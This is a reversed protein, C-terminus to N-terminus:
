RSYGALRNLVAIKDDDPYLDVVWFSRPSGFLGECALLLVLSIGLVKAWVCYSYLGVVTLANVKGVNLAGVRLPELFM